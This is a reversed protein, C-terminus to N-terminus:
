VIGVYVRSEIHQLVTTFRSHIMRRPRVDAKNYKLCSHGPFHMRFTKIQDVGLPVMASEHVRLHGVIPRYEFVQPDHLARNAVKAAAVAVGRGRRRVIAQLLNSKGFQFGMQFVRATKTNLLNVKGAALDEYVVVYQVASGPLVFFEKLAEPEGEANSGDFDQGISSCMNAIM